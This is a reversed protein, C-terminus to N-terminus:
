EMFSKLPFAQSISLVFYVIPSSSLFWLFECFLVATEYIVEIFGCDKKYKHLNNM